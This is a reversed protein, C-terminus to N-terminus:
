VGACVAVAAAVIDLSSLAFKSAAFMVRRRHRLSFCYLNEANTGPRRFGVNCFRMPTQHM